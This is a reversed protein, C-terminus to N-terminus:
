VAACFACLLLLSIIALNKYNLTTTIIFQLNIQRAKAVNNLDLADLMDEIVNYLKVESAGSSPVITLLQVKFLVRPM